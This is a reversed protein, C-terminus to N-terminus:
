RPAPDDPRRAQRLQEAQRRAEQEAQQRKRQMDAPDEFNVVLEQSSDDKTAYGAIRWGGGEKRLIWVVDFVHPVGEHDHLTWISSVSAGDQQRGIFEVEGVELNLSSRASTNIVEGAKNMEDRAKTTLLATAQDGDGSRLAHFFETVAGAPDRGGTTGPHGARASEPDGRFGQRDAQRGAVGDQAPDEAATDSKQCGVPALGLVVVFVMCAIRKM